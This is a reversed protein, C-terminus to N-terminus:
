SYVGISAAFDRFWQPTSPLSSRSYNPGWAKYGGSRIDVHYFNKNYWGFGTAGNAKWWQFAQIIQDTSMGNTTVDIALKSIHPSNKAGGVRRNYEPDRYASNVVSSPFLKQYEVILSKLRPDLADVYKRKSETDVKIIGVTSGGGPLATVGPPTISSTVSGPTTSSVSDGKRVIDVRMGRFNDKLAKIVMTRVKGGNYTADCVYKAIPRNGSINYALWPTMDLRAKPALGGVDIVNINKYERGNYTINVVVKKANLGRPTLYKRIDALKLAVGNNFKNPILKSYEESNTYGNNLYHVYGALSGTPTGDVTSPQSPCFIYKTGYIGVGAITSQDDPVKSFGDGWVTKGTPSEPDGDDFWGGFTTVEADDGVTFSYIIDGPATSGTSTITPLGENDQNFTTSGQTTQNLSGIPASTIPGFDGGIRTPINSQNSSPPACVAAPPKNIAGLSYQNTDGSGGSNVSQGTIDREYPKGNVTDGVMVKNGTDLNMSADYPNYRYAQQYQRFCDGMKGSIKALVNSSASSHDLFSKFDPTYIYGTAPGSRLSEGRSAREAIKEKDKSLFTDLAETFASQGITALEAIGGQFAAPIKNFLDKGMGGIGTSFTGWLEKIAPITGLNTNASAEALKGVSTSNQLFYNCPSNLCDKFAEKLRNAFNSNYDGSIPIRRYNEIVFSARGIEDQFIPYQAMKKTYFNITSIDLSPGNVILDETFQKVAESDGRLGKNFNVALDFDAKLLPNDVDECYPSSYKLFDKSIAYGFLKEALNNSYIIM